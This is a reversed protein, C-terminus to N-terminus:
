YVEKITLHAIDYGILIKMFAKFTAGSNLVARDERLKGFYQGLIICGETNGSVNGAHFLVDSRGPVNMVRFTEGFRPSVHREILYQQSPISSVNPANLLDAPELTVCFVEKQIKLVGFTGWTENEELRVLELVPKM